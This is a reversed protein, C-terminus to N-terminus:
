LLHTIVSTVSLCGHNMIGVSCTSRFNVPTFCPIGSKLFTILSLTEVSELLGIVRNTVEGALSRGFIMENEPIANCIGANPFM